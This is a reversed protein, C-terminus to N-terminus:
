KKNKTDIENKLKGYYAIGVADSIHNIKQKTGTIHAAIADSFKKDFSESPNKFGEAKFFHKALFQKWDIARSLVADKNLLDNSLQRLGGIIMIIDESDSTMTGKYAVFREVSILEVDNDSCLGKLVNMTGLFSIKSPDLVGSTIIKRDEIISYGLNKWGPDVGLIKM